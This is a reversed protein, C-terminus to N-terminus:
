HKDPSAGSRRLLWFASFLPLADGGQVSATTPIAFEAIGRGKEHEVYRLQPPMSEKRLLNDVVAVRLMEHHVGHNYDDLRAQASGNQLLAVLCMIKVERTEETGVADTVGEFGPENKLPSTNMLSQISLLVSVLRQLLLRASLPYAQAVFTM